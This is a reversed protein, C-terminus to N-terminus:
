SIEYGNNLLIDIIDNKIDIASKYLSFVERKSSKKQSTDVVSIYHPLNCVRHLQKAFEIARDKRGFGSLPVFRIDFYNDSFNSIQVRYM